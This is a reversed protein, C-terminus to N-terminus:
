EQPFLAHINNKLVQRHMGQSNAALKGIDETCPLVNVVDDVKSIDSEVNVTEPAAILFLTKIRCYILVVTSVKM